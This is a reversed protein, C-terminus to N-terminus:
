KMRQLEWVLAQVHSTSTIYLNNKSIYDRFPLYKNYICIFSRLHSLLIRIRYFRSPLRPSWTCAWNRISHGQNSGPTTTNHAQAICKLEGLEMTTEEIWPFLQIALPGADWGPHISFSWSAFCFYTGVEYIVLSSLLSKDFIKSTLACLVAFPESIQTFNSMCTLYLAYLSLRWRAHVKFVLVDISTLINPLCVHRRSLFM